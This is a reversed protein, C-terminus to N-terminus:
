GILLDYDEFCIKKATQVAVEYLSDKVFFIETSKFECRLLEIYSSFIEYTKEDTFIMVKKFTCINMRENIKDALESIIHRDIALFMPLNFLQLVDCGQIKM